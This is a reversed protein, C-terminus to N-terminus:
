ESLRKSLAKAARKYAKMCTDLRARTDDDGALLSAKAINDTMDAVDREIVDVRRQGLAWGIRVARLNKAVCDVAAGLSTQRGVTPQYLRDFDRAAVKMTDLADRTKNFSNVIQRETAMIDKRMLSMGQKSVMIACCPAIGRMM